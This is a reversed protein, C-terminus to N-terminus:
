SGAPIARRAEDLLKLIAQETQLYAGEGIHRWRIRGQADVLYLTPWYQNSWAKWMAFDNDIAIPFDLEMRRVAREVNDRDHEFAFEPTHVGIVVLGEDRFRRAWGRVSPLARQCNVCGFTWFEVLVVKGRLDATSLPRSQLWGTAGSLPPMTGLAPLAPTDAAVLVPVATPTAVVDALPKAPPSQLRDIWAQEMWQLATSPLAAALRTDWGSAILTVAVLVVVGALRRTASAWPAVARLAVPLRGGVRGVLVRLAVLAASAGVAYALLPQATSFSGGQLAATTLVMGLVPGACPAWLLGTSAGILWDATQPNRGGDFRDGLAQLPRLVRAALSPWALALGSAAMLGLAVARGAGHAQGAWDGGAGALLVVGGFGLALGGFLRGSGPRAFLLPLVPLVCPSLVTLIGAALSLLALTM